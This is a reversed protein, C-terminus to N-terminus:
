GHRPPAGAEMRAQRGTEEAAIRAALAAFHADADGATWIRAALAEGLFHRAADALRACVAAPGSLLVARAPDERHLSKLLAYARELSPLGEDLQLLLVLSVGPALDVSQTLPGADFVVCDYAVAAALIGADGAVAGPALLGDGHPLPLVSLRAQELQRRWDFLSRARNAGLHRGVCDVLLTRVERGALARMLSPASAADAFFAAVCVPPQHGWMRRLGAAQDAQM